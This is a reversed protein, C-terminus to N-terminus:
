NWLETGLNNGGRGESNTIQLVEIEKLYKLGYRLKKIKNEFWGIWEVPTRTSRISILHYIWPVTFEAHGM